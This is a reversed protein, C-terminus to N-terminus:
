SKLDDATKRIHCHRHLLQLNGYTDKGGKHLPIIHDVELTDFTVFPKNCLTCKMKQEKLLRQARTSLTQYKEKRLGWYMYDGNYPSMDEKVKVFKESAVWVIHPLFTEQIQGNPGRQKGVLIWNDQHKVGQFIYSRGSPFYREKIVKRGNRTDRRFVWARVCRFISDNLRHFTEKCECFKYYNAWGIIIPRLTRILKYASSAKNLQVVTKVKDLLAKQKDKHPYIKVKYEKNKRVQIIQFGLFKFGLRGDRIASKEENLELGIDTLWRKAEEKCAELIALNEHILVFDDAYRVLTLAKQKAISGRNAGKRPTPLRTVFNKLHNEMGHLAINALLPSVIGGQPTGMTSQQIDKPNNAYGEMIDAKLWARIQKEMEPFTNLKSILADHDIRDFCKRIDADFIWKPVGHRLALFIAEIADHASRAPRFGYSNPEFVAEWEPELALKALAQKARDKITPIGLPRKETKGPKPIWVRRISSAKGDLRLSRALAIKQKETLGRIRDVGATKKGRNLTTVLQVAMLKADISNILRKQLWHVQDINGKRKAKYIRRQIRRVRDTVKLWNISKWALNLIIFKSMIKRQLIQWNRGQRRCIVRVIRVPANAKEPNGANILCTAQLRSESVM